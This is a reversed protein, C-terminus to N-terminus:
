RNLFLRWLHSMMGTFKRTKKMIPFREHELIFKLKTVDKSSETRSKKYILNIVCIFIGVFFLSRKDLGNWYDM